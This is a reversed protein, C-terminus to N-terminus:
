YSGRIAAVSYDHEISRHLVPDEIQMWFHDSPRLGGAAPITGSFLVTGDMSEGTRSFVTDRLTELPLISELTGEQYLVRKGNENIWARLIISDWHDKMEDFPWFVLPLIKENIQKAKEINATELDRDTHDSGVTVFIRDGDFLAVFEVEGSTNDGQVELAKEDTLTKVGVRYITPVAKPEPVGMEALEKIHEYVKERDRGAFGACLVRKAMFSHQRAGEKTEMRIEFRREM